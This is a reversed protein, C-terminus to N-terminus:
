CFCKKYISVRNAGQLATKVNSVCWGCTMGEVTLRKRLKIEEKM